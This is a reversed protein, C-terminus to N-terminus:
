MAGPSNSGIVSPSAARRRACLRELEDETLRVKSAEDVQRCSATRV